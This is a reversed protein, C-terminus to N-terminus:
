IHGIRYKRLEAACQGAGPFFRELEMWFNKSHNKIRTHVLEHLLVYDVLEPPLLVLQRNLSIRNKGSCSGWRTKQNRFSVGTYTFGHQLALTALRDSLMRDAEAADIERAKDASLLLQQEVEQLEGLKEAIWGSKQEAFGVAEKLSCGRPIAVRVGKFPRISINLRKARHSKEFHVLGAGNIEHTIAKKM